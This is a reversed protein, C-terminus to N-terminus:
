KEHYMCKLIPPTSISMKISFIHLSSLGERMALNGADKRMGLGAHVWRLQPSTFDVLESLIKKLLTILEM